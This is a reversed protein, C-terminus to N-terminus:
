SVGDSVKFAVREHDLGGVDLGLVVPNLGSNRYALVELNDFPDPQPLVSVDHLIREGHRVRFVPFALPDIGLIPVTVVVGIDFLCVAKRVQVVLKQGRSGFGVNPLAEAKAKFRINKLRKNMGDITPSQDQDIGELNKEGGIHTEYVKVGDLTVLVTNEHEASLFYIDGPFLDKIYIEPSSILSLRLTASIAVSSATAFLTFDAPHLTLKGPEL